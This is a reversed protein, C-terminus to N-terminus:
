NDKRLVFLPCIVELAGEKSGRVVEMIPYAQVFGVGLVTKNNLM